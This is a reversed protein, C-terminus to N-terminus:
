RDAIPQRRLLEKGGVVLEVRVGRIRRVELRRKGIPGASNQLLRYLGAIRDLRGFKLFSGQLHAAVRNDHRAFEFDVFCTKLLAHCWDHKLLLRIPQLDDSRILDLSCLRDIRNRIPGLTLTM